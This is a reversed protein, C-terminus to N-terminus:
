KRIVFLPYQGIRGYLAPNGEEKRYIWRLIGAGFLHPHIYMRLFPVNVSRWVVIDFQMEKLNNKFYALDHSYHYPTEPVSVPSTAKKRNEWQLIKKVPSKLKQNWRRIDKKIRRPILLWELIPSTPWSYVVAASSGPKLVRYLERFASVQEDKPVHYIVHLAVAGDVANDQLPVNTIDGLIYLGKDGIKKQAEKLALFSIDVCIRVDYGESYTLYEPYQIPGSGADLLYRGQKKLYRNVRLHCNHIYERAVPRLDEWKFSDVFSAAKKGEKQWGISDYFDQLVKKEASLTVLAAQKQGTMPIALDEMLIIIGDLVPYVYQGEVSIFGAELSAKVLTGDTHLLEGRAIQDNMQRIEDYQLLRLGKKTIPCRLISQAQEYKPALTFSPKDKVLSSQMM